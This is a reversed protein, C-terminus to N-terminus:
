SFGANSGKEIVKSMAIQMCVPFSETFSVINSCGLRCM